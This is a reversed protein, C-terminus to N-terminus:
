FQPEEHFLTKTRKTIEEKGCLRCVRKWRKITQAPVDCPGRWDVGMTGPPDGPITYASIYEPCYESEQWDHPCSQELNHLNRQATRMCKDLSKIEDRLRDAEIFTNM